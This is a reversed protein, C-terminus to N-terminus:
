NLRKITCGISRSKTVSVEKGNTLEKIAEQLHIRQVKEEDNPNDDIAGTYVLVGQKNFLFCEPTRTAGFADALEHNKDLSYYWSYGLKSAYTRMDDLSEGKGRTAENSNILVVGIKNELAFKSIGVTRSENNIVVPCTNSSFMVLLGNEKMASQLTVTKGSIDTMSVDAKPLKTGVAIPDTPANGSNFALLGTLLSAYLLIKM